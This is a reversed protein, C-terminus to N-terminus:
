TCVLTVIDRIFESDKHNMHGMMFRLDKETEEYRQKVGREGLAGSLNKSYKDMMGEKKGEKM